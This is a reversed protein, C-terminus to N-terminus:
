KENVIGIKKLDEETENVKSCLFPDQSFSRITKTSMNKCNLIYKQALISRNKDSPKALKYQWYYFDPHNMKLSLAFNIKEQARDWQKSTVFEEINILTWIEKEHNVDTIVQPPITVESENKRLQCIKIQRLNLIVDSDTFLSNPVRGMTDAAGKCDLRSLYVKSQTLLLLLHDPEIKLAENIKSLSQASDQRQTSLALEYMQQAKESIFVRSLLSINNKVEVYGSSKPSLQNLAKELLAMAQSRDKQLMLNQAKSILDQYNEAAEHNSAKEKKAAPASLIFFVVFIYTTKKFLDIKFCNIENLLNLRLQLM